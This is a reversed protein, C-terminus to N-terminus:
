IVAAETGNIMVTAFVSVVATLVAALGYALVSM